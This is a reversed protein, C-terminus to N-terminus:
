RGRWDPERGEAFARAGEQADESVLVPGAIEGQKGFAEASSWDGSERLIRKSAAVALPANRTVRRALEITRELTEGAPCLGNVLGLDRAREADIPDGTLALEMAIAAPIRRELEILGGSAALLGRKVEPIGFRADDAALVLDCALMLEFGGALVNGEVAALLPKAPPQNIVGFVGRREVYPVDGRAFAKLDMGACFTGGAGTLVAARLEGDAEFDDIAASMAGATAFDFANRVEPRNITLILVEDRRERLILESPDAAM